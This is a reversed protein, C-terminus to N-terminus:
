SRQPHSPPSRRAEQVRDAFFDVSEASFSSVFSTFVSISLRRFRSVKATSPLKTDTVKPAIAVSSRANTITSSSSHPVASITANVNSTTAQAPITQVYGNTGEILIYQLPPTLMAVDPKVDENDMTVIRFAVMDDDQPTLVYEVEGRAGPFRVISKLSLTFSITEDGSM